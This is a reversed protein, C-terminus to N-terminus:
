KVHQFTSGSETASVTKGDSGLTGSTTIGVIEMNATLHSVVGTAIAAALTRWGKEVPPLQAAPISGKLAADLAEYIANGMGSSANADGADLAM